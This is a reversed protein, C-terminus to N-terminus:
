RGAMGSLPANEGRKEEWERGRARECANEDAEYQTDLKSIGTAFVDIGVDGDRDEDEEVRMWAEGVSVAWYVSLIVFWVGFWWGHSTLSALLSQPPPPEPGYALGEEGRQQTDVNSMDSPTGDGHDGLWVIVLVAIFGWSLYRAWSYAGSSASSSSSHAHAPTAPTSPPALLFPPSRPTSPNISYRRQTLYIEESLLRDRYARETEHPSQPQSKRTRPLSPDSKSWPSPPKSHHSPHTLTSLLLLVLTSLLLLTTILINILFQIPTSTRLDPESPSSSNIIPLLLIIIPLATILAIRLHKSSLASLNDLLTSDQTIKPVPQAPLQSSRASSHKSPNCIPCLTSSTNQLPTTANPTLCNPQNCHFVRTTKHNCSYTTRLSIRCM